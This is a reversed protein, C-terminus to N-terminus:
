CALWARPIEVSGRYVTVAPGQLYVAEDSMGVHLVGGPMHVAIRDAKLRKSWVATAAAAVAGTGCALTEAEVGKEYTRVRLAATGAVEVFNVNAGDPALARDSRIVPGLVPVPVSSVSDTFCVLHETGPWLFQVEAIGEYPVGQLKFDPQWRSPKKFWICVDATPDGPVDAPYAGSATEIVVHERNLGTNRAYRALCRAGNGCMSGESGDANYYIMRYDGGEAEALALIGDAGIGHRRPCIQQAIKSLEAGSFQYFRNDLVVFDNGAGSMKTFEVVLRIPTLVM